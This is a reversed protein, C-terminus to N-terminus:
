RDRGTPRSWRTGALQTELERAFEPDRMWMRDAIERPTPLRMADLLDRRIGGHEADAYLRITTALATHVLSRLREGSVHELGHRVILEADALLAREEDSLHDGAGWKGYVELARRGHSLVADALEEDDVLEEADALDVPDPDGGFTALFKARVHPPDVAPISDGTM